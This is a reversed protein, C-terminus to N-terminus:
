AIINSRLQCPGWGLGLQLAVKSMSTVICYFSWKLISYKKSIYRESLMSTSSQKDLYGTKSLIKTNSQNRINHNSIVYLKQLCNTANAYRNSAYCTPLKRLSDYASNTFIFEVLMNHGYFIGPQIQQPIRRLLSSM